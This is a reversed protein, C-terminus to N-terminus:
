YFKLEFINIPCLIRIYIKLISKEGVQGSQTEDTWWEGMSEETNHSGTNIELWNVFYEYILLFNHVYM